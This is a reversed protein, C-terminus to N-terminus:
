ISRFLFEQGEPGVHVLVGVSEQAVLLLEERPEQWVEDVDDLLSWTDGSVWRIKLEDFKEVSWINLQDFTWSM